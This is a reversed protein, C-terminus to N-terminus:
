PHPEVEKAWTLMEQGIKLAQTLDEQNMVVEGEEYRRITAFDTLAQLEYGFPPECDRPIKSVLIGLDHVLPVALNRLILVAKLAKEISQQVFYLSNEIRMGKAEALVQAAALDSESLRLLEFGYSRDFYREQRSPTM